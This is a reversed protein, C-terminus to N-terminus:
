KVEENGASLTPCMSYRGLPFVTEEKRYTTLFKNIRLTKIEKYKDIKVTITKATRKIILVKTKLESNGIFGFTYTKNIEFTKM